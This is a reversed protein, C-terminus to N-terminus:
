PHFILQFINKIEKKYNLKLNKDSLKTDVDPREDYCSLPPVFGCCSFM